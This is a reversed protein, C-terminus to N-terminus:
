LRSKMWAQLKSALGGSQGIAKAKKLILASPIPDIKMRESSNERTKFFQELVDSFSLGVWDDMWM